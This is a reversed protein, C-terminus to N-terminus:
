RNTQTNTQKDRLQQVYCVLSFFRCRGSNTHTLTACARKELTERANQKEKKYLWSYCDIKIKIKIQKAELWIRYGALQAALDNKHNVMRTHHHAAWGRGGVGERERM